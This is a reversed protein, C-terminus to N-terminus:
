TIPERFYRSNREINEAQARLVLREREGTGRDRRRNHLSANFFFKKKATNSSEATNNSKITKTAIKEKKKKKRRGIKASRQQGIKHECETKDDDYINKHIKIGM